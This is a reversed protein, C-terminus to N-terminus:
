LSASQLALQTPIRPTTCAASVEVERPQLPGFFIYQAIGGFFLAIIFGFNALVQMITMIIDLFCPGQASVLLSRGSRSLYVAVSYFNSFNRCAHGITVLTALTSCTAYWFVRSSTISSTIPRLGRRVIGNFPM